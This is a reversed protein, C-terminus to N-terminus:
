RHSASHASRCHARVAVGFIISRGLQREFGVGSVADRLLLHGANRDAIDFILKKKKKKQPVKLQLILILNKNSCHNALEM